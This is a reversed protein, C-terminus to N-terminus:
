SHKEELQDFPYLDGVAKKLKQLTLYRDWGSRVATIRASAADQEATALDICTIAGLQEQLRKIELDKEYYPLAKQNTEYEKVALQYDALAQKVELLIAQREKELDLRANDLNYRSQNTDNAASGFDVSWSLKLTFYNQNNGYYGQSNDTGSLVDAQSQDSGSQEAAFWSLDGNTFEYNLGLSRTESQSNYGLSVTPLEANRAQAWVRQAKKINIEAKQLELRRKLAKEQLADLKLDMADPSLTTEALDLNVLDELGIQNALKQRAIELESRDKELNFEAQNLFNEIKLQDPKTIKGLNLQQIALASAKRQKELAETQLKLVQQAKLVNCYDECTNCIIEAQKIQLAAEASVQDWGAAAIGSVIKQGYLNWTTPITEQIVIQFSNPYTDNAAQYRYQGGIDAKPFIKVAENRVALKAVELDNMAAKIQYDAKLAMQVAQDLTLTDPEASVTLGSGLIGFLLLALCLVRQLM